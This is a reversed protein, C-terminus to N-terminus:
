GREKEKETEIEKKREKKRETKREREIERDSEREIVCVCVRVFGCVLYSVRREMGERRKM